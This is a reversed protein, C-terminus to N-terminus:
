RSIRMSAPVGGGSGDLAPFPAEIPTLYVMKNENVTSWDNQLIGGTDSSNPNWSWFTWSPGHEGASIDKVGDNNFDGGLYATIAKFWAVDKPDTLKTGFEGIYVPAIQEKYIFGWM